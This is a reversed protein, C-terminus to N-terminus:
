IIAPRAVDRECLESALLYLMQEPQSSIFESAFAGYPSRLIEDFLHPRYRVVSGFYFMLAWMTGLQPLQVAESPPRLHVYYRRYGGGPVASVVVWLRRKIARVLDIVVDTPRGSYPHANTQELCVLRGDTDAAKLSVERFEGSFGTEDLLRKRSIGYRKLDGASVYLRLWLEGAPRDDVFEIKRLGVFREAQGRKSERWIRHGVVIQPLLEIVPYADDHAPRDYGLRDILEPFVNIFEGSDKAEVTSDELETGGESTKEKLGHMARDLSGPYGRVRILVKALNLFSYYSLLPNTSIGASAARYFDEAQELFALAELRHAESIKANNIAGSMVAWPAVAFVTDYLGYRRNTKTVPFFSFPLPRGKAELVHGPRPKAVPPM